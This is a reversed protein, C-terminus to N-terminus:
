GNIFIPLTAYWTEFDGWLGTFFDKSLPIMVLAFIIAVLVVGLIEGLGFSIGGTEEEKLENVKGFIASAVSNVKLTIMISLNRM